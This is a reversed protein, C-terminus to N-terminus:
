DDGCPNRQGSKPVPTDAPPCEAPPPPADSGKVPRGAPTARRAEVETLVRDVRRFRRLLHPARAGAAALLAVPLPRGALVALAITWPPVGALACVLVTARPTWPLLALLVLAWVGYRTVTGGAESLGGLGPAPLGLADLLRPGASQVATATLFAGAASAIVFTLAIARWRRPHLAPVGMLLMQNPLFPLAYDGLPFVALAPLFWRRHAARDLRILTRVTRAAPGRPAAAPAPAPAPTPAPAPADAM